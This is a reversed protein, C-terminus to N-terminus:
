FLLRSQAPDEKKIKAKGELKVSILTTDPKGPKYTESHYNEKSSNIVNQKNGQFAYHGLAFGVLILALTYGAFIQIIYKDTFNM